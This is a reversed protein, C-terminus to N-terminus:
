HLAEKTTSINLFEMTKSAFQPLFLDSAEVFINSLDHVLNFVTSSDEDNLSKNRGNALLMQLFQHVATCSAIKYSIKTYEPYTSIATVDLNKMWNILTNFHQILDSYFDFTPQISEIGDDNLLYLIIKLEIEKM